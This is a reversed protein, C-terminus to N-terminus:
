RTRFLEVFSALSFFTPDASTQASAQGYLRDGELRLNLFVTHLPHRMVDPTPIRGAYRGQLRGDVFDVDNLLQALQGDVDVHVDGDEDVAVEMPVDEQWTRLRGAWSGVLGSPPDFGHARDGRVGPPTSVREAETRAAARAEERADAYGPDLAAVIEQSISVRLDRALGNMLVVVAVDIGPYLALM